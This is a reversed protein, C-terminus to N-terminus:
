AVWHLGSADLADGFHGAHQGDERISVTLAACMAYVAAENTGAAEWPALPLGQQAQGAEIMALMRANFSGAAIGEDNFLAHWDENYSRSTGTVARVAAHVGEQNTTM